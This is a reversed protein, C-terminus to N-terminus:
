GAGELVMTVTDTEDPSLSHEYHLICGALYKVHPESSDVPAISFLCADHYGPEAVNVHRLLGFHTCLILADFPIEPPIVDSVM